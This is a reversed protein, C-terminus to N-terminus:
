TDIELRLKKERQLNELSDLKAKLEKRIEKMPTLKEKSSNLWARVEQLTAKEMLLDMTKERAADIRQILGTLQDLAGTIDEKEDSHLCDKINETLFLIKELRKKFLEAAM